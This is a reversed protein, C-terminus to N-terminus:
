DGDMSGDTLGAGDIVGEGVTKGDSVGLKSGDAVTEGVVPLFPPLFRLSPLFADSAGVDAGVIVSAGVVLTAGLASGDTLRWGDTDDAGLKSGDSLEAGDLLKKGVSVGDALLPFPLPPLPLFLSPFPLFPPFFPLFPLSDSAGLTEGVIRAGDTLTSGDVSGDDVGLASGDTDDDGLKSGLVLGLKSGETLERGLMSGDDLEAGDDLGVREEFFFPFPLPRGDVSRILCISRVLIM